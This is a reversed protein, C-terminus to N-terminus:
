LRDNMPQSGGGEGSPGGIARREQVAPRTARPRAAGAHVPLQQTQAAAALSASKLPRRGGALCPSDEGAGGRGRPRGGLYTLAATAAAADAAAAAVATVAQDQQRQQQRQQQLGCAAAATAATANTRVLSRSRDPRAAPSRRRGAAANYGATGERAVGGGPVALLPPPPPASEPQLSPRLTGWSLPSVVAGPHQMGMRQARVVPLQWGPPRTIASRGRGSWNPSGPLEQRTM